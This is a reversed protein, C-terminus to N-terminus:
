DKSRLRDRWYGPKRAHHAIAIILVENEREEAVLDFPFRRLILRKVAKLAGIQSLMPLLPLHGDEILDLGAEVAGFFETGLGARETEYWSAAAAAEEVAEELIHITRV